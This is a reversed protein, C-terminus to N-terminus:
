PQMGEIEVRRAGDDLINVRVVIRDEPLADHAREGWEVVVVGEAGMMDEPGLLEFEEVGNIRYLDIHYLPMRGRYEAVLTFTPSTVPEDIGLGRAVGRVFTTKGAGLPGQL